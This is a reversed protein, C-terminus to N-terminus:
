KSALLLKTKQLQERLLDLHKSLAGRNQEVVQRGKIGVTRRNESNQLLEIAVKAIEDYQNVVFLAGANTLLRTIEMFNFVHPGMIIPLGLAAPELPNHGGVPVLSGGVFAVDAIAYFLCLEGMTDGIFIDTQENCTVNQSRRVIKFGQKECLTAVSDFREPHRPVLILFLTPLIQRLQQFQKLIKEEEDEHTSAAILIPRALNWERRLAQAKEYISAPINIDFKMSGSVTVNNKLAGLQIFRDADDKSQAIILDIYGMIQRTFPQFYQYNTASKQSLRANAIVTRIGQQQCQYLINPWIETEMMIAIQPKILKLFRKVVVPMDYPAYSHFIEQTTFQKLLQASGTPTTTTVVIPINPYLQRLNKILPTALIVEGMSVAHIWISAQMNTAPLIAFRELIRQRYGPNRRSRWLLRLLILPTALYLLISYLLQM